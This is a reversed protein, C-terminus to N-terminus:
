SRRRPAPYYEGAARRRRTSSMSRCESTGFYFAVLSFDRHDKHDMYQQYLYALNGGVLVVGLLINLVGIVGQLQKVLTDYRQSQPLDVAAARSQFYSVYQHLAFLVVLLLLSLFFTVAKQKMMLVFIVFVLVSQFFLGSPDSTSTFNITFYIIGFIMVWKIMPHEKIAYQVSCNMTGALYNGIIALFILLLGKSYDITEM